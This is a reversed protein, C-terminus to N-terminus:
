DRVENGLSLVSRTHITKSASSDPCRRSRLEAIYRQLRVDNWAAGYDRGLWTMRTDGDNATARRGRLHPAHM